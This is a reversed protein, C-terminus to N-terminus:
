RWDGLAVFSAWYFPHTSQGRLRRDALVHRAAARVAAATSMGRVLRARYLAVMWTRATEDDVGWLSMVVTRVGALRFARQLGLVGEGAQIAGAGTDCASLVAWEVGRLDLGGVEEATLIGDDAGAATLRTNARALALGALPPPAPAAANDSTPALGGVGRFPGAVGECDPGTFFGHTALHLARRGPANAKFAAETAAPGTLVLVGDADAAAVTQEWLESIAVVERASGPIPEFRVGRLSHCDTGLGRLAPVSVGGVAHPTTAGAEGAAGDGPGYAAGGLALLGHGGPPATALDLLDREAALLHIIAGGDILFSARSTPLAYWSVMHLDGDPVVFITRAGGLYPTVPEWVARHLAEGAERYTTRTLRATRGGLLPGRGAEAAWRAVLADILDARGLPVIHPADGGRRLVLAAYKATARGVGPPAGDQSTPTWPPKGDFAAGYRVYSVLAADPPLLTATAAAGASSLRTEEALAPFQEALTREAEEVEARARDLRVADAPALSSVAKVLQAAYAARARELAGLEGAVNSSDTAAARRRDAAVSFALGRGRAIADWVRRRQESSAGSVVSLALDRGEVRSRAFALTERESLYHATRWYYRCTSEEAGLANDIATSIEGALAQMRALTLRFTATRPHENGLTARGIELAREAQERALRGNGLNANLIALNHLLDAVLPHDPGLARERLRLAREDLSRAAQYDGMDALLEALNQLPSVLEIHEAGLLRERLALSRELLDRGRALDGRDRALLALGNLSHAVELHEGGQTRERIALARELYRQAADTDGLRRVLNGLNHLVGAVSLHDPGYAAEFRALAQEMHRRAGPLDGADRLILALGNHAKAVLASEPGFVREQAALAQEGLDRATALDGARRTASALNLLILAADASDPGRGRCAAALARQLLHRAQEPHGSALEVDGTARLVNWTDPHDDKLRAEAVARAEELFPRAAPADRAALHMDALVVLTRVLLAPDPPALARAEALALEATEWAEATPSLGVGLLARALAARAEAIAASGAGGEDELRAILRRALVELSEHERHELLTRLEALQQPIAPPPQAPSAQAAPPVSWSLLLIALGVWRHLSAVTEPPRTKM